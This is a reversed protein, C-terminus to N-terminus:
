FGEGVIVHIASTSAAALLAIKDHQEDKTVCVQSNPPLYYDAYTAVVTGTGIHFYVGNTGGQNTVVAAKCGGGFKAVNPDITYPTSSTTASETIGTGYSPNFAQLVSM